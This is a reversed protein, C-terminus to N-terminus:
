ERTQKEASDVLTALALMMRMNIRRLSRFGNTTNQGDVCAFGAHYSDGFHCKLHKRNADVPSLSSKGGSIEVMQIDNAALIM